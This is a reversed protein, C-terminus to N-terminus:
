QETFVRITTSPDAMGGREPLIEVIQGGAALASGAIDCRMDYSTRRESAVPECEIAPASPDDGVFAYLRDARGSNVFIALDSNLPASDQNFWAPVVEVVDQVEGCAGRTIRATLQNPNTEDVIEPYETRFKFNALATETWDKPTRFEMEAEYLGDVSMLRACLPRDPWGPIMARLRPTSEAAKSLRLVGVVIAGSITAENRVWEHPEGVVELERMTDQASAESLGFALICVTVAKEVFTGIRVRESGKGFGDATQCM